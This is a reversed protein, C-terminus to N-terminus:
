RGRPCYFDRNSVGNRDSESWLPWDIRESVDDAFRAIVEAEDAVKVSLIEGDAEAVDFELGNYYITRSM